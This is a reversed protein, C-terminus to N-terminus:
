TGEEDDLAAYVEGALADAREDSLGFAEILEEDYEAEHDSAELDSLSMAFAVKYALERAEVRGLQNRLAAIREMRAAHDSRTSFREFLKKLDADSVIKSEGAAIGRLRGAVARFAEYEENTLRGDAATALYAAELIADVEGVTLEARAPLVRAVHVTPNSTM